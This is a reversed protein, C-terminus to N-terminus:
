SWKKTERYWLALIFLCYSSEMSNKGIGNVRVRYCEQMNEIAQQKDGMLWYSQAINFLCDARFIVSEAVNKKHSDLLQLCYLFAKGSKDYYTKKMYWVGMNFYAYIQEWIGEEM